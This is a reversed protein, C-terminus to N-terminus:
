VASIQEHNSSRAEGVRMDFSAHGKWNLHAPISVCSYFTTSHREVFLCLCFSLGGSSTGDINGHECDVLVWDVGTRALTRSVNSGPIMQWCGMSPGKAEEFAVRLRNTAKMSPM